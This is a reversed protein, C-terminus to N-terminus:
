VDSTKKPVGPLQDLCYNSVNAPKGKILWSLHQISFNLRCRCLSLTYSNFPTLARKMGRTESTSEVQSNTSTDPQVHCMKAM